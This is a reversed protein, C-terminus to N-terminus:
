HATICATWLQHIGTRGPWMTSSGGRWTLIKGSVRRRAPPRSSKSAPHRAATEYSPTDSGRCRTLVLRNQNVAVLEDLRAGGPSGARIHRQGLQEDFAALDGLGILAIDFAQPVTFEVLVTRIDTGTLHWFGSFISVTADVTCSEPPKSWFVWSKVANASTKQGGSGLSKSRLRQGAFGRIKSFVAGNVPSSGRSPRANLGPM